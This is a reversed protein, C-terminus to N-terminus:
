RAARVLCYHSAPSFLSPVLGFLVGAVNGSADPVVSVKGAEGKFGTSLVWNAVAVGAGLSYIRKYPRM